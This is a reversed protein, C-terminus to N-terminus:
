KLAGTNLPNFNFLTASKAVGVVTIVDNTALDAALCIQGGAVAPTTETITVNPSTGGTLSNNSLTILANTRAGLSKRFGVTYPGSGGVVSNGAGLIADLAAQVAATNANYAIAATTLGGFSLTYTGGTPTGTITITQVQDTGHELYYATTATLGSVILDVGPPAYANWQGAALASGIAIGDVRGMLVDTNSAHRMRGNSDINICRGSTIVGAAEAFKPQSGNAITLTTPLAVSAM